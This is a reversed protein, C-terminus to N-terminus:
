GASIEVNRVIPRNGTDYVGYFALVSSTETAMWTTPTVVVTRREYNTSVPVDASFSHKAGNGNQLYVAITSRTATNASKIDFSIKYPRLGYKNIIPAMDMYQAFERFGTIEVNSSYFFGKPNRLELEYASADSHLAASYRPPVSGNFAFYSIEQDANLRLCLNAATPNPCDTVSSPYSGQQVKLLEISRSLQSHSSRAANGAAIRNINGYAVTTVAALIGIVVIVILLEVITFGKKDIM